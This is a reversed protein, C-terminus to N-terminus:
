PPVANNRCTEAIVISRLVEYAEDLLDNTFQYTYWAAAAIEQDSWAIRREISTPEDTARGELRKRLAEKSPPLIFITVSEPFLAKVRKAGEVDIVFLVHQGAEKAEEIVRRSSGYYVDHLKVYELLEGARIKEEFQAREVFHYDIGDIEQPRPARTTFSVNMKFANPFERRLKQVLTTKGTGAPASIVFLKPFRLPPSLLRTM